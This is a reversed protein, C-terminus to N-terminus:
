HIIGWQFSTEKRVKLESQEKNLGSYKVNFLYVSPKQYRSIIDIQLREDDITLIRRLNM